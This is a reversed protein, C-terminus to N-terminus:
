KFKDTMARLGPIQDMLYGHNGYFNQILSRRHKGVIITFIYEDHGPSTVTPHYGKKLLFTDGHGTMYAASTGDPQFAFQGGFGTEPRFRYHYLEEFESEQEGNEEDHKHAPYGSWCGEDAYLESVLLRGARNDANKGLIHYIRRRTKTEVSGVDVMDVETPFIRFPELTQNYAGGAVAIECTGSVARATAKMDVPVYVSDARGSWVDKRKGVGEFVRGAVEIDCTGSLVVFVSEFRELKQDFRDGSKLEILNFYILSLLGNAHDVIPQNKNEFKRIMEQM